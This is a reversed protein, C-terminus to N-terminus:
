RAGDFATGQGRPRRQSRINSIRPALPYILFDDHIISYDGAALGGVDRCEIAFHDLFERFAPVLAFHRLLAYSFGRAKLASDTRSDARGIRTCVRFVCTRLYM